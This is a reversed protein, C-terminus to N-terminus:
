PLETMSISVTRAQNVANESISIQLAQIGKSGSVVKYTPQDVTSDITWGNAKLYKSYLNLNEVLSKKTEFARTAQFRGDEATANYNQTIVAGDELPLNIPFKEPLQTEPVQQTKVVSVIPTTAEPSQSDKIFLSAILTIGLAAALIMILGVLNKKIYDEYNM